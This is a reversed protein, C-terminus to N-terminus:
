QTQEKYTVSELRDLGDGVRFSLPRPLENAADECSRILASANPQLPFNRYLRQQGLDSFGLMVVLPDVSLYNPDVLRMEGNDIKQQLGADTLRYRAPYSWEGLEISVQNATDLSMQWLGTVGEPLPKVPLAQLQCSVESNIRETVERVVNDDDRPMLAMTLIQPSLDLTILLPQPLADLQKHQEPSLEQRQAPTMDLTVAIQLTSAARARMIEDFPERLATRQVDTLPQLESVHVLHEDELDVRFRLSKPDIQRQVLAEDIMQQKRTDLGTGSSGASDEFRLTMLDDNCGALLLAGLLALPKCNM